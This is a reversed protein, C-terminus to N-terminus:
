YYNPNLQSNMDNIVQDATKWNETRGVLWDISVGMTEAILILSDYGPLREGNEWSAVTRVAINCVAALQKQTYGSEIRWRILKDRFVNM